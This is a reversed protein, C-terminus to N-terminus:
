LDLLDLFFGHPEEHHNLIVFNDYGALRAKTGSVALAGIIGQGQVLDSTSPYSFQWRELIRAM